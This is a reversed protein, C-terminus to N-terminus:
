RSAILPANRPVSFAGTASKGGRAQGPVATRGLRLDGSAMAVNHSHPLTSM